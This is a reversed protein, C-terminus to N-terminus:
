RNGASAATFTGTKGDYIIREQIQGSGETM